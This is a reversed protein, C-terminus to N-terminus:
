KDDASFHNLAGNLYPKYRKWRKSSGQYVRQRVQVNSVTAVSRNNDQPSLCADDWDLGLHGILKRTEEEQHETMVEYNLDYIKHPLAQHWFKMLDEYLEHYHLIDDLDYCYGLSDKAFYQTYNAWCVAAPDRKVHIIKAEPLATAILGLFRFNQPMKDTVIAKGESRQKLANLYQERLTTLAAGDVPTQDAALSSGFQAVFPLEGAGTVLPHSSIIQEVLTTGSRPMGVIFVPAHEHAVIEPEFPHATIRPYSAKLREFLKKDKAKEYGLQKKRLANGEAYFHFATAYDQLDESAKALAFCIHCRDKQSIAPDRFLEQMKLFQEDESSFKKMNALNSHAEAFDPKLAIAQRYSAKAEDLRGLGKLTIGLNSHTEAFDPKLAIAHKQSAEAETLRGVEQLMVGLNNHAEALNHKLAIAQRYSTEAEDLIGRQKLTNGLYCHAEAFDPKLAIAQRYSAEAEDLRDLGQLTLGLNSHAEPDQPSLEIAKRMPLQSEVLRGKQKLVAGLVKWGFPHKPFQQTLSVALAKAEEFRGAQYHEIFHNIQDQSPAAGSSGGRAKRKKGKKKEALRKRKESVREGKKTDKEDESPSIRIQQHLVQLKESSVGAREGEVLVLKAEDFRELKILADLYSFWFQEVKPNAGLALKFLPVAEAPKGVAVALVGLNHNADPHNPQSKLIARYLREADQLKGEKHAVVGQRLAQDITLEM